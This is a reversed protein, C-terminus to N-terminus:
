LYLLFNNYILIFLIFVLTKSFFYAVGNRLKIALNKDIFEFCISVRNNAISVAPMLLACDAKSVIAEDNDKLDM